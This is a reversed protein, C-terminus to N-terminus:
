VASSGARLLRPGPAPLDRPLRDCGVPSPHDDSMAAQATRPLPGEPM